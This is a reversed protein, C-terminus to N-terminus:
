LKVTSNTHFFYLLKESVDKELVKGLALAYAELQPRYGEARQSQQQPTVRDTKFDVVVLGSPTEFACDVVGQLLLEEGAAQPDYLAADTLLSFRYERWVQPATRIREALSSALFRALAPIDLAAAQEPTLLRRATLREAFATVAEPVAPTDLPLFQMALHMATGREAGTLGRKEQLFRPKEPAAIRRAPLTGEAIEQDIARGKLQTATVKSPTVTAARHSYRFALAAEDPQPDPARAEPEEAPMASGGDEEGSIRHLRLALGEPGDCLVAPRVGTYDHFVGAQYTSLLALLLWDGPCNVAAVAEPPAPLEALACLEKLHKDPNKRSCVM